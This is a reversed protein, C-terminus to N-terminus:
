EKQQDTYSKSPTHLNLNQEMVWFNRDRDNKIIKLKLNSIKVDAM